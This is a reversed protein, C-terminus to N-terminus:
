IVDWDMDELLEPSHCRYSIGLGALPKLSLKKSSTIGANLRSPGVSLHLPTQPVLHPVANLASPVAYMFVWHQPWGQPQTTLNVREAETAWPKALELGLTKGTRTRPVSMAGSM